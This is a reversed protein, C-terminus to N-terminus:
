APVRRPRTLQRLTVFWIVSLQSALGLLLIWWAPPVVQFLTRLFTGLVEQAGGALSVFSMVRYVWTWFTLHSAQFIPVALLVLSALLLAAGGTSFLLIALTQRRQINLRETEMRQLWRSTFGSAPALMPAARLQREVEDWAAVLQRCHDCTQLHRQLAAQEEANLPEASLLWDDFPLHNSKAM